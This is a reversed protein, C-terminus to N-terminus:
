GWPWPPTPVYREESVQLVRAAPILIISKNTQGPKKKAIKRLAIQGGVRLLVRIHKLLITDDNMAEIYSVKEAELQQRSRDEDCSDSKGLLPIGEAVLSECYRKEVVVDANNYAGIGLEHVIVTPIQPMSIIFVFTLLIVFLAFIVPANRETRVVAGMSLLLLLFTAFFALIMGNLAWVLYAGGLVLFLVYLWAGGFACLKIALKWPLLKIRHRKIALVRSAFPLSIGM